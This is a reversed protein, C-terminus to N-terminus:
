TLLKDLFLDLEELKDTENKLKSWELEIFEARCEDNAKGTQKIFDEQAKMLYDSASAMIKVVREYEKESILWDEIKEKLTDDFLKLMQKNGLVMMLYAEDQSLWKSIKAKRLIKYVERNM